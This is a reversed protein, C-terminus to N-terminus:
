RAFRADSYLSSTVYVTRVYVRVAYIVNWGDITIVNHQM